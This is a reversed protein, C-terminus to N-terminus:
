REKRGNVIRFRDTQAFCKLTGALMNHAPIKSVAAPSQTTFPEKEKNRAGIRVYIKVNYPSEPEGSVQLPLM